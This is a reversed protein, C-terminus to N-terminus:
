PKLNQNIGIYLYAMKLFMESEINVTVIRKSEDKTKKSNEVELITNKLIEILDPRNTMNSTTM